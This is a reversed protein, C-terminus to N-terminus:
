ERRELHEALADIVPDEAEVVALRACRVDANPFARHLVLADDTVSFGEFRDWPVLWRSGGLRRELGSPTARYQHTVDLDDLVVVLLAGFVLVEFTSIVAFQISGLGLVVVVVAPLGWRFAVRYRRPWPASWTASADGATPTEVLRGRAMQVLVAGLGAAALGLAFGAVGVAHESGAALDTPSGDVLPVVAGLYLFVPVAGVGPVLWSLRTGDLWVPLGDWGRVATAVAGAVLVVLAGLVALAGGTDLWVTAPLALTPCCLAAIYCGAVVAFRADLRVPTTFVADGPRSHMGAGEPRGGLYVTM